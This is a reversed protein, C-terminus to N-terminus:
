AATAPIRQFRVTVREFGLGRALRRLMQATNREATPLLDRDAAAAADLKRQAVLLLERQEDAGGDGLLDGTRDILGRDRDLVRTRSRDLRAPARRAAPLTIVVSRRDDSLRLARPGLHRFDVTADVEGAALVVTREGKVFSPLLKADKEIDVVQQLNARAARYESLRQLSQLLAPQSRDRTETGFPNLERLLGGGGVILAAVAALVLLGALPTRRRQLTRTV